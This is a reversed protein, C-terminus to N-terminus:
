LVFNEEKLRASGPAEQCMFQMLQLAIRENRIRDKNKYNLFLLLGM